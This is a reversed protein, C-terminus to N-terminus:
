LLTFSRVDSGKMWDIGYYNLTDESFRAIGIRRYMSREPDPNVEQVVLAVQPHVLLLFLVCNNPLNQPGQAGLMYDAHFAVESSEECGTPVSLKYKTLDLDGTGGHEFTDYVYYLIAAAMSARGKLSAAKLNGFPNSGALELHVCDDKFNRAFCTTRTFPQYQPIDEKYDAFGLLQAPDFFNVIDKWYLVARSVSLWSWSPGYYVSNDHDEDDDDLSSDGLKEVRWLLDFCLSNGWLGAIYPGRIHQILSCVGSLAPLRDYRKTLRLASYAEIVRHSDFVYDACERAKSLDLALEQESFDNTSLSISAYEFVWPPHPGGAHGEELRLQAAWKWSQATRYEQAQRLDRIQMLQISNATSALVEAEGARITRHFAGGPSSHQSLGGCECTVSSRCEWVLEDQTFHLIRRSLLREQYAWGRNMLPSHHSLAEATIQDWHLIPKRVAIDTIGLSEPLKIEVNDVSHPTSEYCGYTDGRSTTASLTILAGQYIDAMNASETNWDDLDDQVICLSDIWIYQINLLLVIQIADRFTKPIIDWEIKKIREQFTAKTTLCSRSHGWCHSLAAYPASVGDNIEVLRFRISHAGRENSEIAM